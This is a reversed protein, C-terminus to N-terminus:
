IGSALPLLSFTKGEASPFINLKSYKRYFDLPLFHPPVLILLGFSELM